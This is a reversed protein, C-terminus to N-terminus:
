GPEGMRAGLRILLSMKKSANFMVSAVTERGGCLGCQRELLCLFFKHVFFLSDLVKLSLNHLFFITAGLHASLVM